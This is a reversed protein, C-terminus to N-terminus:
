DLRKESLPLYRGPPSHKWGLLASPKITFRIDHFVDPEREQEVATGVPKGHLGKIQGGIGVTRRTGPLETYLFSKGKYLSVTLFGPVGPVVKTEAIQGCRLGPVVSPVSQSSIM